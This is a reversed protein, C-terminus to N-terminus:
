HPWIFCLPYDVIVNQPSLSIFLSEFSEFKSIINGLSDTSPNKSGCSFSKSLPFVRFDGQSLFRPTLLFHPLFLLLNAAPPLPYIYIYSSAGCSQLWRLVRLRRESQFYIHEATELAVEGGERIVRWAEVLERYEEFLGSV